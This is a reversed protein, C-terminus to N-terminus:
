LLLSYTETFAGCLLHPSQFSNTRKAFPPEQQLEPHRWIFYDVFSHFVRELRFLGHKM